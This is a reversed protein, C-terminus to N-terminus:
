HNKTGTFCFLRVLSKVLGKKIQHARSSEIAAAFRRGRRFRSRVCGLTGLAPTSGARGYSM